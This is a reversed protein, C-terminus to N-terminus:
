GWICCCRYSPKTGKWSLDPRFWVLGKNQCLKKGPVATEDVMRKKKGIMLAAFWCRCTDTRLAKPCLSEDLREQLGGGLLPFFRTNVRGCKVGSSASGPTEKSVFDPFSGGGTVGGPAVGPFANALNRCKKEFVFRPM